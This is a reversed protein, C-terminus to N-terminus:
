SILDFRGRPTHATSDTTQDSTKHKEKGADDESWSVGVGDYFSSFSSLLVTCNHGVGCALLDKWVSCYIQFGSVSCEFAMWVQFDTNWDLSLSFM